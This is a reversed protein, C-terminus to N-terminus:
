VRRPPAPASFRGRCSIRKVVTRCNSRRARCMKANRENLLIVPRDREILNSGRSFMAAFIHGDIARGFKTERKILIILDHKRNADIDRTHTHNFKGM